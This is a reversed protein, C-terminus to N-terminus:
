AKFDSLKLPKYWEEQPIKITTRPSIKMKKALMSWPFVKIEDNLNCVAKNYEQRVTALCGGNHELRELLKKLEPDINEGASALQSHLAKWAATLKCDHDSKEELSANVPYSGILAQVQQFEKSDHEPLLHLLETLIEVRRKFFGNVYAGFNEVRARKLILSNYIYIFVAAAILLILGPISM